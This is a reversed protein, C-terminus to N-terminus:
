SQRRDKSWGKPWDLYSLVRKLESPEALTPCFVYRDLPENGMLALGTHTTKKVDEKPDPDSYGLAKRLGEIEEPKEKDGTLFLWGPGVKFHATYARLSEPTDQVPDLSISYMFIDRGLRKGLLPQVRALNATVMPCAGDTCAVFFMNILFIKDKVLDDYFRLAKGDPTRLVVNPFASATTAPPPAIQQSRNTDSAAKASPTAVAAAAAGSVSLFARRDM